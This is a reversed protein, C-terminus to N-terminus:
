EEFLALVLDLRPSDVLGAFKGTCKLGTVPGVSEPTYFGGGLGSGRRFFFCRTWTVTDSDRVSVMVAGCM